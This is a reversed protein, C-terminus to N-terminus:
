RWVSLIVGIAIYTVLTCGVDVLIYKVKKGSWMSVGYQLPLAFGLWMWFGAEVGFLIMNDMPAAVMFASVVHAFVFATFLSAIIQGLYLKWMMKKGQERRATDNPDWGMGEMWLKGFLPGYWITGIVISAIASAAVAWYNVMFM